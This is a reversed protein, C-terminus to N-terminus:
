IDLGDLTILRATDSGSVGTIALTIAQAPRLYGLREPWEILTLFTSHVDDWGLEIIEDPHHLRYLDLHWVPGQPTDYSQMLTYTPSPVEQQPNKCLARILARALTTKGAGLDGRLLIIHPGAGRQIVAASLTNTAWHELTLQDPLILTM